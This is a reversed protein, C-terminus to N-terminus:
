RSYILVKLEGQLEGLRATILGNGPKVARFNHIGFCTDCFGFEGSSNDNDIKLVDSCIWEFTTFKGVELERGLRDYLRVQVKFREEVAIAGPKHDSIMEINLRVPTLFELQLREEGCVIEAKSEGTAELALTETWNLNRVVGKPESSVLSCHVQEEFVHLGHTALLRKEPESTCGYTTTALTIIAFCVNM